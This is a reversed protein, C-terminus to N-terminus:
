HQRIRHPSRRAPDFTQRAGPTVNTVVRSPRIREWDVLNLADLDARMGSKNITGLVADNTILFAQIRRGTNYIREQLSNLNDELPRTLSLSIHFQSAAWRIQSESCNIGEGEEKFTTETLNVSAESTAVGDERAGALAPQEFGLPPRRLVVASGLEVRERRRPPFFQGTALVPPM